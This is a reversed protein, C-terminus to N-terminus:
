QTKEQFFLKSPINLWEALWDATIDDGYKECMKDLYEYDRKTIIMAIYFDFLDKSIDGNKFLDSNNRCTQRFVRMWSRLAQYEKRKGREEWKALLKRLM